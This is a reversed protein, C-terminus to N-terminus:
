VKPRAAKRLRAVCSLVVIGTLLMANTAPEPVALIPVAATLFSGSSSTYTIGEPLRLYFKATNGFDFSNGISAFGNLSIGFSTPSGSFVDFAVSGSRMTSTGVVCNTGFGCNAGYASLTEYRSSSGGPTGINIFMQAFAAKPSADAIVGLTGEFSYDLFATGAGGSFTVSDSIGSNGDTTTAFPPAYVSKGAVRLIGTNLNAYAFAYGPDTTTGVQSTAETSGSVFPPQVQGPIREDGLYARATADALASRILL